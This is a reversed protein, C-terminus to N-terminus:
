LLANNVDTVDNVNNIGGDVNTLTKKKIVVL